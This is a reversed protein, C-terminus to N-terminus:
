IDAGKFGKVSLYNLLARWDDPAYGLRFEKITEEALGRSKLYVLPSPTLSGNESTPSGFTLNKEFFKTAEEMIAFNKERENQIQPSEKKLEVGARKALNELAERFDCGEIEMVFKFVDGGKQCGFCHWIQRQPSVFFSASRENHFPCRAKFNVGARDLKIYSGILDAVDTREKIEEIQSSM